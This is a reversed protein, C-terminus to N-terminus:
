ACRCGGEGASSSAVWRRSTSSAPRRGLVQARGADALQRALEEQEPTLKEPLEVQVAVIQDGRRGARELGQGKIRFKRGPQTGPPIKCCWRRATSPGSGSGPASSRRRWTSRSRASSTSGTASSSATRSSRHLRRDPRGGARGGRGPQGQGKLRVKAGSETGAARHDHGRRETRMEGAGGCTPCPESPIKGTGRCQPCPRNVAFGGQGFSISAAATASTAPPSRPVPRRAAARRLHRVARDGAAHGPGQRGAGGGPVAGRRRGRAHEAAPEERRGAASSRPSSTARARGPRRLRLREAAPRRGAPGAGGRGRRAPAARAARVRGAPADPRVAEAERCRVPRRAGRLDGQLARGGAPNNPIPTPITSSPWGGTRRRSRTRPPRTPSASSRTSTGSRWRPRGRPRRLGARPRAPPPRGQLPVGGPLHRCVTHDQEPATPPTTPSRRTSRRTSRFASPTSGSSAWRNSNRGCSGTSCNWRGRLAGALTTVAPDGALLREM